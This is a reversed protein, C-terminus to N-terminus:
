SRIMDWFGKTRSVTLGLCMRSWGHILNSDLSKPQGPEGHGAQELFFSQGSEKHMLRVFEFDVVVDACFQSECHLLFASRGHWKKLWWNDIPNYFTM